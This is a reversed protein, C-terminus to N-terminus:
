RRVFSRRIFPRRFGSRCDIAARAPLARLVAPGIVGVPRNQGQRAIKGTAPERGVSLGYGRISLRLPRLVVCKPYSARSFARVMGTRRHGRRMAAAPRRSSAVYDAPYTKPCRIVCSLCIISGLTRQGVFRFVQNENRCIVCLNLVAQTPPLASM